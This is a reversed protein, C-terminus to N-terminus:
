RRFLRVTRRATRVHGPADVARTRLRLRRTDSQRLRRRARASLRVRVTVVGARVLRGRTLGLVRGGLVLRHGIRCAKSCRTRVLVGRRLLLRSRLVVRISFPVSVIAPIEATPAPAPLAPATTIGGGTTPSTPTAPIGGLARYANLRGGTVTKGTLGPKL